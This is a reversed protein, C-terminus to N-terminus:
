GLSGDDNFVSEMLGIELTWCGVSQIAGKDLFIQHVIATLHYIFCDWQAIHNNVAQCILALGPNTLHSLAFRSLSIDYESM